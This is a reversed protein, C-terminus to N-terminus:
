QGYNEVDGKIWKRKITKGNPSIYKGSELAIKLIEEDITRINNPIQNMILKIPVIPKNSLAKDIIELIIENDDRGKVQWKDSKQIIAKDMELFLQIQSKNWTIGIENLRAYIDDLTKPTKLQSYIQEQM